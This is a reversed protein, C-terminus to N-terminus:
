KQWSETGDVDEDDEWSGKWKKGPVTISELKKIRDRLKSVESSCSRLMELRGDLLGRDYESRAKESAKYKPVCASTLALLVVFLINM